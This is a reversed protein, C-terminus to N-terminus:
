FVVQMAAQTFGDKCVKGFSNKHWKLIREAEAESWEHKRKKSLKKLTETGAYKTHLGKLVIAASKVHISDYPHSAKTFSEEIQMPM